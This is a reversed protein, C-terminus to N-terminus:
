VHLSAGQNILHDVKVLIPVGRLLLLHLLYEITVDLVYEDCHEEEGQYQYTGLLVNVSIPYAPANM